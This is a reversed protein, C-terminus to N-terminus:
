GHKVHEPLILYTLEVKPIGGDYECDIMIKIKKVFKLVKWEGQDKVMVKTNRALGGSVIKMGNQGAVELDLESPKITVIKTEVETKPGFDEPDSSGVAHVPENMNSEMLKLCPIGEQYSEEGKQPHSVKSM